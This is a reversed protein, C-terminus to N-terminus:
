CASLHRFQALDRPLPIRPFDYKLFDAYRARYTPSHLIAYLYGLISEPSIGLPLGSGETPPVGLQESLAKLFTPSLNLSRATALALEESTPYLYLPFSM